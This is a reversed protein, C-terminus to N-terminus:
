NEREIVASIVPAMDKLLQEEVPKGSSDTVNISTRNGLDGLLFTYVGSKLEMPKVGIDNWFED